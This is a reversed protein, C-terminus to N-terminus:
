ITLKAYKRRGLRVNDDLVTNSLRFQQRRSCDGAVDFDPFEYHGHNLYRPLIQELLYPLTSVILPSMPGVGCNAGRTKAQSAAEKLLSLVTGM